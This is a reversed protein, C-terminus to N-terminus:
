DESDLDAYEEEMTKAFLKCHAEFEAVAITDPNSVDPARYIFHLKKDLPERLEVCAIRIELHFNLDTMPDTLMICLLPIDVPSHQIVKPVVTKAIRKGTSITWDSKPPTPAKMAFRPSPLFSISELLDRPQKPPKPADKLRPLFNCDFLEAEDPAVVTIHLDTAPGHGTNSLVADMFITMERKYANVWVAELYSDLEVFFEGRQANYREIEDASIRWENMRPLPKVPLEATHTNVRERKFSRSDFPIARALVKEAVDGSRHSISIVPDKKRLEALQENLGQVTRQFSDLPDEFRDREPPEYAIFRNRKAKVRVTSDGSVIVVEDNDEEDRRHIAALLLKDDAIVGSLGHTAFDEFIRTDLHLVVHPAIAVKEESGILEEIKKLVARARKRITSQPHGDKHGDIEYFVVSPIVIEVHDADVIAKWDLDSFIPWHLFVMTDVIAVKRVM